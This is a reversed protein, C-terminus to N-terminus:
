QIEHVKPFTVVNDPPIEFAKDIAARADPDLRRYAQLMNWEHRTLDATVTEANM